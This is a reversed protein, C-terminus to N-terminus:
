TKNSGNDFRLSEVIKETLNSLNDISRFAFVLSRQM